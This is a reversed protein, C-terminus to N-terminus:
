KVPAPQCYCSHNEFKLVPRPDCMARCARIENDVCGAICSAALLALVVRIM